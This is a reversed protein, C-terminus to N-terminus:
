DYVVVGGAISRATPFGKEAIQLSKRLVNLDQADVVVQENVAVLANKLGFGGTTEL